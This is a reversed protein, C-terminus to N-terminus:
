SFARRMIANAFTLATSPCVHPVLTLNPRRYLAWARCCAPPRASLAEFGGGAAICAGM